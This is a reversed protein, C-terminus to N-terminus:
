KKKNNSKVIPKIFPKGYREIYLKEWEKINTTGLNTSSCDKCYDANGDLVMIGLSLCNKCYVVPIEEYDIEKKTGM